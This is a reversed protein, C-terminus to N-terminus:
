PGSHGPATSARGDVFAIMDAGHQRVHDLNVHLLQLLSKGRHPHAPPCLAALEEETASAIVELVRARGHSLYALLVDRPYRPTVPVPVAGDAAMGQEEPGGRVYDPSRFGAVDTTAYFDLYWLCHYAVNCFASLQQISEDSREPIPTVGDRPWAWPDTRPVHWMSAAWRDDPCGRLAREVADLADVFQRSLARRDLAARSM